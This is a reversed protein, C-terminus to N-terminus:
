LRCFGSGGIDRGEWSRGGREKWVKGFHISIRCEGSRSMRTEPKMRGTKGGRRVRGVVEMELGDIEAETVVEEWDKEVLVAEV